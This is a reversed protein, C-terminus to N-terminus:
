IAVRSMDAIPRESHGFSLAHLRSWSPRVFVESEGVIEKIAHEPKSTDRRSPEVLGYGESNTLAAVVPTHAHAGGRTVIALEGSALKVYCGPPYIGFEKIVVAALPEGQNQTFLRRAAVDPLQALRTARASLKAIFMDIYRLVQSMETPTQLQAPYGSGTSTEHHQEVAALWKEDTIGLQRLLAVAELPHRHIHQRQEQTLPRRQIALGGQLETISMNMTLGAGVLSHRDEESWKLRRAILGCTAAVHLSHFVGYDKYRTQDHRLILFLLLDRSSDCLSIVHSVCEMIRMADIQTPTSRLFGGMSNQLRDWTSTFTQLPTESPPEFTSATVELEDMDVFAGRALLGDRTRESQVMFGKALLLGGDQDRVGFRLPMGVQIERAVTAIPVLRM